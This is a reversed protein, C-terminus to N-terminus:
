TTGGLATVTACPWIQNDHKCEHVRIVDPGTGASVPRSIKTHLALVADRQAELTEWKEWLDTARVLLDFCEKFSYPTRLALDAATSVVSKGKADKVSAELEKVRGLLYRIDEPAHAIFEADDRSMGDITFQESFNDPGVAAPDKTASNYFVQWPEGDFDTLANLRATISVLDSM